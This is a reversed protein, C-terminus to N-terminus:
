RRLPTLLNSAPGARVCRHRSHCGGEIPVPCNGCRRRHRSIAMRIAQRLGRALPHSLAFFVPLNVIVGVVAATIGTLPAPFKLDGDTAKVLAVVPLFIERREAIRSFGRV